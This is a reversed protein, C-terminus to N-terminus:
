AMKASRHAAVRCRKSRRHSQRKHTRPAPRLQRRPHAAINRKRPMSSPKRSQLSRRIGGKSPTMNMNSHLTKLQENLFEDLTM